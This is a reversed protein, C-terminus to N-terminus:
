RIIRFPTAVARGTKGSGRPTASLRYRGPALPRGRLRGTFGVRNAGVSDRHTLSGRVRAFRTCRKGHRNHTTPKLCRRGSKRGPLARAVTFTTTAALTDRYSIVAGAKRALSM